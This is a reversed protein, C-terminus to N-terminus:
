VNPSYSSTPTQPAPTSLTVPASPSPTTTLLSKLSEIQQLLSAIYVSVDTVKQQLSNLQDQLKKQLAKNGAQAAAKIQQRLAKIQEQYMKRMDRQVKLADHLGRLTMGPMTTPTPSQGPGVTSTPQPTNTPSINATQDTASGAAEADTQVKLLVPRVTVPNVNFTM